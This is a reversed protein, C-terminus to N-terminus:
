STLARRVVEPTTALATALAALVKPSPSAHGDAEWRKVTSVGSNTAAALEAVSLGAAFRLWRLDPGDEPSRLLERADVGLAQAVTHLTRPSRPRAEGREWRSVRDGAALGARRALENQSLGARERAVRLRTTDLAPADQMAPVVSPWPRRRGPETAANVVPASREQFTSPQPGCQHRGERSRGGQGEGGCLYTRKKAVM